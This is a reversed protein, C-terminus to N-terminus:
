DYRVGFFWCWVYYLRDGGEINEEGGFYYGCNKSWNLIVVFSEVILFWGM